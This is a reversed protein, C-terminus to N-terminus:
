APALRALDTQLKRRMDDKTGFMVGRQRSTNDYCIGGTHYEYDISMSTDYRPDRESWYRYLRSVTGLLRGSGLDYIEDGVKFKGVEHMTADMWDKRAAIADTVGKNLRELEAAQEDTMGDYRM